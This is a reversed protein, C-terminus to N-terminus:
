KAQKPACLAKLASVADGELPKGNFSVQGNDVTIVGMKTEGLLGTPTNLGMYKAVDVTLDFSYVAPPQIVSPTLDAEVVPKGHVDVGPQYDASGDKHPQYETLYQCEQATLLTEDSKKATEKAIVTHSVFLLCLLVIIYKKMEM